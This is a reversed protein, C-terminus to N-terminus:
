QMPIAAAAAEPLVVENEVNIDYCEIEFNQVTIVKITWNNDYEDVVNPMEKYPKDLTFKISVMNFDKDLRIEYNLPIQELKKARYQQILDLFVKSEESDIIGTLVYGGEQTQEVHNPAFDPVLSLDTYEEDWNSETVYWTESADPYIYNYYIKKDKMYQNITLTQTVGSGTWEQNSTVYGEGELSIAACTNEIDEFSRIYSTDENSQMMFLVDCYIKVKTSKLAGKENLKDLIEEASIGISNEESEFTSEEIKSSVETQITSQATESEIVKENSGCGSLCAATVLILIGLVKRKM